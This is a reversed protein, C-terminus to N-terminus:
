PEIEMLVKEAIEQMEDATMAVPVDCQMEDDFVVDEALRIRELAEIAIMLKENINEM